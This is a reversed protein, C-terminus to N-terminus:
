GTLARRDATGRRLDRLADFAQLAEGYSIPSPDFGIKSHRHCPLSGPRASLKVAEELLEKSTTVKGDLWMRILVLRLDGRQAPIIADPLVGLYPNALETLMASLRDEESKSVSAPHDQEIMRIDQRCSAKLKRLPLLRQRRRKHSRPM